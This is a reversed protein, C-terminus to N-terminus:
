IHFFCLKSSSIIHQLIKCDVCVVMSVLFTNNDRGVQNELVLRRFRVNGDLNQTGAGRGSLVDYNTPNTIEVLM